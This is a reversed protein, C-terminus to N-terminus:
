DSIIARQKESTIQLFREEVRVDRALYGQIHNKDHFLDSFIHFNDTVLVAYEDGYVNLKLLKYHILIYGGAIPLPDVM